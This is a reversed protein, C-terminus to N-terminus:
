CVGVQQNMEMAAHPLNEVHRGGAAAVLVAHALLDLNDIIVLSRQDHVHNVGRGIAEDPATPGGVHEVVDEVGLVANYSIGYGAWFSM